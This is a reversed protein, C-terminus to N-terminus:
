ESSAYVITSLLVREAQWLHPKPGNSWGRIYGGAIAWRGITESM